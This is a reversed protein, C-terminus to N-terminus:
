RSLSYNKILKGSSSKIEGWIMFFEANIIRGCSAYIKHRLLIDQTNVLVM